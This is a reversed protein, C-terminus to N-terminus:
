ALRSELLEKVVTRIGQSVDLWAEDKNSWLTIPQRNQPLSQMLALPTNLWDTPRLLVPIVRAQGSENREFARNMEVEVFKSALFDPSVLALIIDAEELRASIAETWAAGTSIQSDAWVEILGERKMPSLHVLLEDLLPKDKYAYSIFLKIGQGPKAKLGTVGNLEARKKVANVFSDRNRILVDSYSFKQAVLAALTELSFGIDEPDDTGKEIVPLKEGFSWFPLYPVRTYNLLEDATVDKHAWEAYIAQLETAFTKLWQQALEYEVRMEFRTAVPLVLLKARDFPLSNRTQKARSVVDLSGRLSQLNATFLLVLLDPLQVTCIGGIDTIGTRSDILVFDFAEKWEARSTELFNGLQREEYLRKWDLAQMREVYSQDQRGATMLMLPHHAEPFRVETLFDAWGPKRGDVYDHILETLGPRLKSQESTPTSNMWREFYLHLGPAELDWDICLVKYGWRSLLAGINALALTRGVGGKYSYFTVISGEAM